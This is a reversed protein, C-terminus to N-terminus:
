SGVADAFSADDTQLIYLDTGDEGLAEFTLPLGVEQTRAVVLEVDDSVTAKRVIVRYNKTGDQWEIALAREDVDEPSPPTYTYAGGGDDAVAGGGLALVVNEGAFQQLQFGVTLNRSEVFRRIAYFSQWARVEGTSKADTISVGDESVYGLETWAVGLAVSIDAPEAAGVEAVYVSGNAGIVVQDADKTPM